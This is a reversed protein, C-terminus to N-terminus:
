RHYYRGSIAANYCLIVADEFQRRNLHGECLARVPAWAVVPNTPVEYQNMIEIIEMPVRNMIWGGVKKMVGELTQGDPLKWDRAIM